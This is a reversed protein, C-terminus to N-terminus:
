MCMTLAHTCVRICVDTCLCACVHACKCALMHVHLCYVCAHVQVCTHACVCTCASRPRPTVASAGFDREAELSPYWESCRKHSGGAGEPGGLQKREEGVVRCLGLGGGVSGCQGWESPGAGLWSAEPCGKNRLEPYQQGWHQAGKALAWWCQPVLGVCLVQHACPSCPLLPSCTHQLWSPGSDVSMRGGASGSLVWQGACRLGLTGRQAVPIGVERGSLYCLLM